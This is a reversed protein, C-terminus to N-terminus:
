DALERELETPPRQLLLAQSAGHELQPVELEVGDRLVTVSVSRSWRVLERVHMYAPTRRDLPVGDVAIVLDGASLESRLAGSVHEILLRGQGDRRVRLDPHAFVDRDLASAPVLGLVIHVPCRRVDRDARMDPAALIEAYEGLVRVLFSRGGSTTTWAPGGAVLSVPTGEAILAHQPDHPGGIGIGCRVRRAREVGGRPPPASTTLAACPVVVDRARASGVARYLEIRVDNGQSRAATIVARGDEPVEILGGAYTGARLSLADSRTTGSFALAGRVEVGLPRRASVPITITVPTARVRVPVALGDGRDVSVDIVGVTGEVVCQALAETPTSIVLTALVWGAAM